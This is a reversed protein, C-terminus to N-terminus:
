KGQLSECCGDGVTGTTTTSASAAADRSPYTWLRKKKRGRRGEGQVIAYSPPTASPAFTSLSLSPVVIGGGSGGGRGSRLRLMPDNKHSIQGFFDGPTLEGVDEIRVVKACHIDIDLDFERKHCNIDAM